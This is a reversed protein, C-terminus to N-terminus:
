ASTTTDAWPEALSRLGAGVELIRDAVALLERTSRALRDLRTVTVVDGPQLRDLMRALEPRDSWSSSMKEFFMRTCGAAYLDNRQITQDQECAFVLSYGVLFQGLESDFKKNNFDSM